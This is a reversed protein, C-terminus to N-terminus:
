GEKKREQVARAVRNHKAIIDVIGSKDYDDTVISMYGCSECKVYSYPRVGHKDPAIKSGDVARCESGCFPCPLPEEHEAVMDLWRYACEAIGVYGDTILMGLPCSGCRRKGCWDYFAKARDEQKYKQFNKM